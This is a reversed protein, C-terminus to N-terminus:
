EDEPDIEVTRVRPTSVVTGPPFMTLGVVTDVARRHGVPAPGTWVGGELVREAVDVEHKTRDIRGRPKM